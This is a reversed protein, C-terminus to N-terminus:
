QNIAPLFSNYLVQYEHLSALLSADSAAGFVFLNTTLASARSSVVVDEPLALATWSDNSLQFLLAAQGEPDFVILLNTIGVVAPAAVANPLPVAGDWPQGGPDAAPDYRESVRLAGANNQGGVVYIRNEIVAAGADRRATPMPTRTEWSDSAPDYAFVEDRYAQGDWGGFLYLRGEVSALAYRSRPEPLPALQEWREGRPDYVEFVTSVSGDALEGGPVYIRGGVTVAQVQGVAIPKNSLPVWINNQPDFREVTDLPGSADAGAMAYLRGDYSALAFGTRPQGLAAHSKWREPQPALQGGTAATPQSGPLAPGGLAFYALLGLLALVLVAGLSLAWAPRRRPQPAAPSADAATASVAPVNSAQGSAPLEVGLLEVPAATIASAFAGQAPEPQALQPEQRPITEVEAIGQRMAFLTAETRSSAGIKGFINRLHVKVTNISIDLSDAIQQNTAGTAVLRLIEAERDSLQVTEETM